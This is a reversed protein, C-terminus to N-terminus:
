KKHFKNIEIAKFILNKLSKSTNVGLYFGNFDFLEIM